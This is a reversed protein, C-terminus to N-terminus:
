RRYSKLIGDMFVLYIGNDYLWVERLYSNNTARDIEKPAGLALRCEDRTMEEAIKGEIILAWVDDSIRPYRLRPDTFSFLAPFSRPTRNKPGPHIFLRASAGREDTFSVKVPYIENGPSVSDIHVKVFQRGGVSNDNDDRWTGTLVYLDLDSLRSSVSDVLSQQITFPVSLYDRELLSKLPHQVRYIYEHESDPLTFVLDTVTSGTISPAERVEKFFLCRGGLSDSLSASAGFILRIKDDTVVFPKGPKWDGLKEDSIHSLFTDEPTSVINERKVDRDTVKPTYEVGTFCSPLLFLSSLLILPLRMKAHRGVFSKLFTFYIFM